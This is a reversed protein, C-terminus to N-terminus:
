RKSEHHLMNSAHSLNAPSRHPIREGSEQILTFNRVILKGGWFLFRPIVEGEIEVKLVKETDHHIKILDKNEDMDFIEGDSERKFTLEHEHNTTHTSSDDQITGVWRVTKPESTTQDGRRSMFGDRESALTKTSVGALSLLAIMVIKFSQKM